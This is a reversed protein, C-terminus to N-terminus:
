GMAAEFTATVDVPPPLLPCIKRAEVEQATVMDDNNSSNSNSSTTATSSSSSFLQSHGSSRCHRNAISPQLTNHGLRQSPSFSEVGATLAAAAVFLVASRYKM